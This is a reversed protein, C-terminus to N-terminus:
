RILECAMDLLVDAVVTPSAARLGFFGQKILSKMPSSKRDSKTQSSVLALTKEEGALDVSIPM